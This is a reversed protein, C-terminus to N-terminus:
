EKGGVKREEGGRLEVMRLKEERWRVEEAGGRKGGGRSKEEEAGIRRGERGRRLGGRRLGGRRLGGRRLGRRRRM